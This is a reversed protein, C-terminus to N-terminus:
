VAEAKRVPGREHLRTDENCMKAYTSLQKKNISM